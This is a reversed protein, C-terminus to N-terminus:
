EARCLCMCLVRCASPQTAFTVWVGAAVTEVATTVAAARGDEPEEPGPGGPGTVVSAGGGAGGRRSGAGVSGAVTGGGGGPKGADKLAQVARKYKNHLETLQRSLHPRPGPAPLPLSRPECSAKACM